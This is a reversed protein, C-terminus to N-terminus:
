REDDAKYRSRNSEFDFITIDARIESRYLIEDIESFSGFEPLLSFPRYLLLKDSFALARLFMTMFREYTTINPERKTSSDALELKAFFADIDFKKKYHYNVVLEINEFLSLNSILPLDISVVGYNQSALIAEKAEKM